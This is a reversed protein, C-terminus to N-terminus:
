CGGEATVGIDRELLLILGAITAPSSCYYSVFHAINHQICKKIYMNYKHISISYFIPLYVCANMNIYMHIFKLASM